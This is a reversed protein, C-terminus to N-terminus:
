DFRNSAVYESTWDQYVKGVCEQVFLLCLLIFCIEKQRCLGGM